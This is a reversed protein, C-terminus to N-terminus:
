YVHCTKSVTMLVDLFASNAIIRLCPPIQIVLKESTLNFGLNM